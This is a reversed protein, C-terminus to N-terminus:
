KGFLGKVKDLADNIFDNGELMTKAKEFYDGLGEKHDEIFTKAASFDKKAILVKVQEFLEQPTM